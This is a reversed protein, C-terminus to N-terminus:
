GTGGTEEETMHGIDKGRVDARANSWSEAVAGTGKESPESVESAGGLVKGDPTRQLLEWGEETAKQPRVELTHEIRLPRLPTSQVYEMELEFELPADSETHGFESRIKSETLPGLGSTLAGPSM